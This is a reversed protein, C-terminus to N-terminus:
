PAVAEQSVIEILSYALSSADAPPNKVQTRLVRLEYSNGPEFTFGDIQNYFNQSEGDQELKVQLCRMPGVGVCDAMEPGVFLTIEEGTAAEGTSPSSSPVIGPAIPSCGSVLLAVLVFLIITVSTKKFKM